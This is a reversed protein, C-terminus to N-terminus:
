LFAINSTESNRFGVKLPTEITASVTDAAINAINRYRVSYRWVSSPNEGSWVPRRKRGNVTIENKVATREPLRDSRIGARTSSPTPTPITAAPSNRIRPNVGDEPQVASSGPKM